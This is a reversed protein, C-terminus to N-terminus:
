VRVFYYPQDNLSGLQTVTLGYGDYSLYIRHEITGDGMAYAMDAYATGNPEVQLMGVYQGGNLVGYYVYIVGRSDEEINMFTTSPVTYVTDEWYGILESADFGSNTEEEYEAYFADLEAHSYELATREQDRVDNVARVSIGQIYPDTGFPSQVLQYLEEPADSYSFLMALANNSVYERVAHVCYERGDLTSKNIVLPADNDEWYWTRYLYDKLASEAKDKDLPMGPDDLLAYDLQSARPDYDDYKGVKPELTPAPISTPMVQVTSAMQDYVKQKEDSNGMIAFITAVARALLVAAALLFPWVRKKRPPVSPPVSLESHSTPQSTVKPTLGEVKAGCKYCFGAEPPLAAGCKMCFSM